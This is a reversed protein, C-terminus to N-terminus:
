NCLDKPLAREQRPGKCKIDGGGLIKKGWIHIHSMRGSEKSSAEFPQEESRGEQVM